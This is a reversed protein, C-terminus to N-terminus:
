SEEVKSAGMSNFSVKYSVTGSTFTAEGLSGGAGSLDAVGRANFVLSDGTLALDIASLQIDPNTMFRRRALETATTKTTVAYWGNSEYFRIVVAERARVAASRALTLDQAFVMAARQASTRQLYGSFTVAAFGLTLGVLVLVITLEIMTFGGSRRRASRRGRRAVVGAREAVHSV